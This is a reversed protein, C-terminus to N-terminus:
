RRIILPTKGARTQELRQVTEIRAGGLRPHIKSLRERIADIQAPTLPSLPVLRLFFAEKEQVMQYASVPGTGKVAHSIAESHVREGGDFELFANSRGLVADFRRVGLTPEALLISDGL